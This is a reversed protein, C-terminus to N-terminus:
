GEQRRKLLKTELEDYNYKRQEFNNFPNKKGASSTNKSSPKQAQHEKDLIEIDEKTRVGSEMWSTLIKDAYSFSPQSTHAITRNCAEKIIDLSFGYRNTWKKMIRIENDIPDRGSIGLFKMIRYYDNFSNTQRRAEKVSSIGENYWSLAVKDIYSFQRHNNNVCYEILYDILDTSFGLTDYYYVLSMAGSQSLPKKMYSEVIFVLQGFEDDEQMERLRKASVDKKPNAYGYPSNERYLDFTRSNEEENSARGNRNVLIVTSLDGNEDYGLELLGERMWYTLARLVDKETYDLADAIDPLSPTEKSASVARLLYLYVKVYEGNARIMYKDIFDNPVATMQCPYESDINLTNM